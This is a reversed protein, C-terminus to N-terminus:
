NGGNKKFKHKFYKDIYHIAITSLMGAIIAILSSYMLQLTDSDILAIQVSFTILMGILIHCFLTIM